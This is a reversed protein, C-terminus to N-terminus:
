VFYSLFYLVFCWLNNGWRGSEQLMLQFGFLLVVYLHPCHLLSSCLGRPKCGRSASGRTRDDERDSPDDEAVSSGHGRGCVGRDSISVERGVSPIEGPGSVRGGKDGGHAEQESVSQRAVTRPVSVFVWNYTWLDFTMQGCTVTLVMLAPILM